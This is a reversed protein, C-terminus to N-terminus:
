NNPNYKGLIINVLINLDNSDVRGDANLDGFLPNITFDGSTRALEENNADRLIFTLKGTRIVEVGDATYDMEAPTETVGEEAFVYKISAGEPMAPTVTATVNQLGDFTGGAPNMAIEYVMVEEPDYGFTAKPLFKVLKSNNSYASNKHYAVDETQNTGYFKLGSQYTGSYGQGSETKNVQVMLNGGRYLFPTTFQLSMTEDAGSPVWTAVDTFDGTVLAASEFKTQETEMLSVVAKGYKINIKQNPYFTLSTIKHGKLETLMEAPYIMQSTHTQSDFNLGYIPVYENMDTGNCVTIDYVEDGVVGTLAVTYTGAAGANITLTGSYEGKADPAFTVPIEVSTGDSVAAAEYTTGFPATATVTPTIDQGSYNTFTVTQAAIDAVKNIPTSGFDIAEPAVAGGYANGSLAVTFTGGEGEFATITMTGEYEGIANPNFVVPIEVSGATALEAAVYTTSFAENSFTVQPTFANAGKNRLTVTQTKPLESLKSTGFAISEKDIKAAYDAPASYTFTTKPIFNQIGVGGKNCYSSANETEVGYFKILGARSYQGGALSVEFKMLLNKGGYLFPTDFNITVQAGTITVEGNFVETLNTNVLTTSMESDDVEFLSVTQGGGSFTIDQNAYFTMETIEKGVMDTLDSKPYLVMSNSGYSDFYYGYIPAFENLAEGECVTLTEASAGLLGVLSLMTLFLKKM